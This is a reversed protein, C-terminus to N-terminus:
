FMLDMQGNGDQAADAQRVAMPDAQPQRTPEQEATVLRYGYREINSACTDFAPYENGIRRLTITTGSAGLVRYRVGTPSEIIMNRSLKVHAEKGSETCWADEAVINTGQGWRRGRRRGLQENGSEM